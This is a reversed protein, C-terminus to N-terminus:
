LGKIKTCGNVNLLYVLISSQWKGLRPDLTRIDEDAGTFVRTESRPAVQVTSLM